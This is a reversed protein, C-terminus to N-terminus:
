RQRETSEFLRTSTSLNFISGPFLRPDYFCMESVDKLICNKCVKLIMHFSAENGDIEQIRPCNRSSSFSREFDELPIPCSNMIVMQNSVKVVREYAKIVTNDTWLLTFLVKFFLEKPIKM